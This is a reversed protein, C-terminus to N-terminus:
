EATMALCRTQMGCKVCVNAKITASAVFNNVHVTSYLTLDTQCVVADELCQPYSRGKHTCSVSKLLMHWWRWPGSHVRKLRIALYLTWSQDLHLLHSCFKSWATLRESRAVDAQTWDRTTNSFTASPCTKESYKPKGVGIRMGGVAGFDEDDDDPAPVIPGSTASM